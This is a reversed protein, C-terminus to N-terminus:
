AWFVVWPATIAFTPLELDLYQHVSLILSTWDSRCVSYSICVPHLLYVVCFSLVCFRRIQQWMLWLWQSYLLECSLWYCTWRLYNIVLLTHKCINSQDFCSPSAASLCRLAKHYISVNAHLGAWLSLALITINKLYTILWTGWKKCM